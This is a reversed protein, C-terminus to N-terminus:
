ITILKDKKVNRNIYSCLPQLNTYHNLKIIDEVTIASSLPIIHDVDWGFKTQGNYLGYNFWDMWPEFKSELYVKFEEFSCGIIETTRKTKIYGGVRISKRIYSKTNEKLRFLSDNKRRRKERNNREEKNNLSYIKQKLKISEKNKKNFETSRNKNKEKTIDSLKRFYLKSKEKILNKNKERYRKKYIKTKENNEANWQKAREIERDKNNKYYLEQEKKTRM